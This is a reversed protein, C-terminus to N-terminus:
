RRDTGAHEDRRRGSQGPSASADRGRKGGRAPLWVRFTSGQGATSEAAITGGHLEVLSKSIALGLGTGGVHQTLGPTAAPSASSYTSWSTRQWGPGNDSVALEM